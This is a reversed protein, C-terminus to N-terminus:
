LLNVVLRVPHPNVASTVFKSLIYGVATGGAVVINGPAYGDPLPRALTTTTGAQADYLKVRDPLDTPFIVYRGATAHPQEIGGAAISTRTQTRLDYVTIGHGAVYRWGQKWVILDGSISPESNAGNAGTLARTVGTDLDYLFIQSHPNNQDPTEKDFVVQRGSVSPWAYAWTNPAGGQAIIRRQGSTLDLSRIISVTAGQTRAYSQWVVTHGDSSAMSVMSPVGEQAPTDLVTTKGTAANRANLTWPQSLDGGNYQSYVLWHNRLSWLTITAGRPGTVLLRAVSPTTRTGATHLQVLFVGNVFATFRADNSTAHFLPDPLTYALQTSDLAVSGGPLNTAPLPITATQMPRAAAANVTAVLLPALLIGHLSRSFHM